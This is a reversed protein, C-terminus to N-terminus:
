FPLEDGENTDVGEVDEDEVLTDAPAAGNARHSKFYDELTDFAKDALVSQEDNLSGDFKFVPVTYNVRGKKEDRAEGVTVWEYYLRKKTKKTFEGWERVASGKLAINAIQGDETMIYISKHYVGGAANVKAKVDKYLGEAIEGGKFSYVKIEEKGIFKVENSTIGSNSSDHWGKVVHMEEIVLFKFPLNVLVREGKEGKGKDYYEFAKQESKWGLFMSSPNKGQTDFAKRRNSM